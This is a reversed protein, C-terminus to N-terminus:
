NPLGVKISSVIKSVLRRRQSYNVYNAVDLKALGRGRVYGQLMRRGLNPGRSFCRALAYVWFYGLSNMSYGHWEAQKLSKCSVRLVRFRLEHFSKAKYGLSLTKYQLWAEWGYVVPFTLGNIRRWWGADILRGSGRPKISEFAEGEVCGSVVKLGRDSRIKELLFSVYNKPLVSDAGLILVYDALLSVKSLGVNFRLALEPKGVFSESHSPLRFVRCGLGMAIDGTNDLSGDDVVIVEFPKVSQNFVSRLTSTIFKAENRACMVVSVKAKSELADLCDVSVADELASWEEVVLVKTFISRLCM